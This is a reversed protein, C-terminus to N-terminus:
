YLPRSVLIRIILVGFYLVGAGRVKPFELGKYLGKSSGKYSGM